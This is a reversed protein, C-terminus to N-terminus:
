QLINARLERRGGTQEQSLIFQNFSKIPLNIFLNYMYKHTHEKCEYKM